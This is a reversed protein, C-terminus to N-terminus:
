KVTEEEERKEGKLIKIFCSMLDVVEIQSARWDMLAEDELDSEQGLQKLIGQKTATLSLLFVKHELQTMKVCVEDPLASPITGQEKMEEPSYIKEFRWKYYEEDSKGPLAVKVYAYAPGLTDDTVRGEVGVLDEFMLRPREDRDSRAVNVLRVREGVKFEVDRWGEKIEAM